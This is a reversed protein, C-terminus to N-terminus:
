PTSSQYLNTGQANSGNQYLNGSKEGVSFTGTGGGSGGTTGTTGGTQGTTFGGPPYGTLKQYYVQGDTGIIVPNGYQDRGPTGGVTPNTSGTGSGSGAGGTTGQVISNVSNNILQTATIGAVNLQNLNLSSNIGSTIQNIASTKLDNLFAMGKDCSSTLMKNLFQNLIADLFGIGTISVPIRIQIVDLFCTSNQIVKEPSVPQGRKVYETAAQKAAAEIATCEASSLAQTDRSQIATNLSQNGSMRAQLIDIKEQLLAAEEATASFAVSPAGILGAIGLVAVALPKYVKGFRNLTNM